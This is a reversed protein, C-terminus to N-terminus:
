VRPVDPSNIFRYFWDSCMVVEWGGYYLRWDPTSFKWKRVNMEIYTLEIEEDGLRDQRYERAKLKDGPRLDRVQMHRKNVPYFRSPQTM